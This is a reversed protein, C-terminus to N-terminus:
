LRLVTRSPDHRRTGGAYRSDEDSRCSLRPDDARRRGDTRPPESPHPRDTRRASGLGRDPQSPRPGWPDHTRHLEPHAPPQDLLPGMGGVSDGEEPGSRCRTAGRHCRPARCYADDPGQFDRGSMRPWPPLGVEVAAEGLLPLIMAEKPGRGYADPRSALDAGRESGTLVNSEKPLGFVSSLFKQCNRRGLQYDHARFAEDLFGGFGGLLSCAIPYREIPGDNLSRIPSIIFRSRDNPNVAPGLESPRFRAQDILAPFLARVVSVIELAPRGEPPFAPPEPFPAVMIVARDANEGTKPSQGPNWLAHEVFDFPSNNVVGGDVAVFNYDGTLDISSPFAANIVAKDLRFPYQRKEYQEFPTSITRPALGGPFAASAIAANGYRRWEDSIDAQGLQPLTAVDLGLTKDGALWLGDTEPWVAKGVGRIAYHLRDGHTQMGYFGQGFAVDFPIGRLNTVTMIVHLTDALFPFPEPKTVSDTEPHLLAAEEIDDLLAANLVSRVLFPKAGKTSKLRKGDPGRPAVDDDGLLDKRQSGASAVMCPRTVWTEYLSPLVCRISQFSANASGQLAAKETKSLAEPRLGRALAVIGLAGTIAGASAGAMTRLCVRHQPGGKDREDEWAQLAQMLFDIVGATYAGASIAAALALGIEFDPRTGIDPIDQEPM